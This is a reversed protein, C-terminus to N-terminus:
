KTISILHGFSYPCISRVFEIADIFSSVDGEYESAVYDLQPLPQFSSGKYPMPKLSFHADNGRHFSVWGRVEFWLDFAMTETHVTIGRSSHGTPTCYRFVLYGLEFSITFHNVYSNSTHILGNQVAAGLFASAISPLDDYSKSALRLLYGSEYAM